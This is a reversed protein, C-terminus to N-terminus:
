LSRGQPEHQNPLPEKGSLCYQSGRDSHHILEGFPNRLLLAKQLAGLPLETKMTCELSWGVIKRSFLDMVSALYLWGELTWIYTM